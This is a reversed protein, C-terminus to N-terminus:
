AAKTLQQIVKSAEPSTLKELKKGTEKDIMEALAEDSLKRRHSLNNIANKQAESMSKTSNSAKGNKGGTKKGSDQSKSSSSQSRFGNGPKFADSDLEELATMGINNLDRLARAKARTSAMRVLHPTISSDTNTPNADGVDSFIEGAHTEATALCIAERGNEESPFQLLQVSLKKLGKQHSLDLLGQYLVFEKGDLKKIYREDLDIQPKSLYEAQRVESDRAELVVTIHKCKYGSSRKSSFSFDHCTCFCNSNISVKYFITSDSSEVLYHQSSLKIIKSTTTKDAAKIM